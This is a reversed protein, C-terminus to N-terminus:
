GIGGGGRRGRRGGRRRGRGLDNRGHTAILLEHSPLREAAFEALTEFLRDREFRAFGVADSKGHGVDRVSEAGAMADHHLDLTAPEWESVAVWLLEHIDRFGQSGIEYLGGLTNINSAGLAGSNGEM